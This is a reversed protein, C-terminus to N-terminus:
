LKHEFDSLGNPNQIGRPEHCAALPARMQAVLKNAGDCKSVGM